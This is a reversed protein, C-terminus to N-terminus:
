CTAAGPSAAAFLSLFLSRRQCAPEQPCESFTPMPLFSLNHALPLLLLIPLCLVRQQLIVMKPCLRRNGFCSAKLLLWQVSAAADTLMTTTATRKPLVKPIAAHNCGWSLVVTNARELCRFSKRDPRSAIKASAAGAIYNATYRVHIRELRESRPKALVNIVGHRAKETRELTRLPLRRADM